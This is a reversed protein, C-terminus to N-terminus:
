LSSIRARQQDSLQPAYLSLLDIAWAVKDGVHQGAPQSTSWLELNGSRLNGDPTMVPPGDTRNDDRQGNVHHVNEFPLLDRGVLQEFVWRHEEVRVTLGDPGDPGEIHLSVYGDKELRRHGPKARRTLAQCSLGCFKRTSTVSVTFSKGCGGCTRDERALTLGVNKCEISCFHRTRHFLAPIVWVDAQCTGCPRNEGTRIKSGTRDRCNLSCFMRQQGQNTRYRERTFTKGCESDSCVLEVMGTGGICARSCYVRQGADARRVQKLKAAFPKDCRSCTLTHAM